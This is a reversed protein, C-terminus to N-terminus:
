QPSNSFYLIQFIEESILGPVCMGKYPLWTIEGDIQLEIVKYQM